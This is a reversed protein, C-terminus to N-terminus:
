EETNDKTNAAALAKERARENRIEFIDLILMKIFAATPVSLLIGVFGFLAGGVTIAVLVYFPKVGVSHGVIRPQVLNADIQQIVLIIALAILAKLWDGTTIYTAIVAIGGSIIAGFYPILNCLGVFIGLLLGYPIKFISLAIGLVVGVIIADLFAGYIYDYFIKAGRAVYSYVTYLTKKKFILNLVKGMALVIQEHSCLMYVSMVISIILNSFFSGVKLIENLYQDMSNLNFYGLIAEVTINKEIEKVDIIGLIKGSEGGLQHLYKIVSEYYKPVDEILSTISRSIAPFLLYIAGAIITIILTYTIGVSIGRSHKNFFNTKKLKKFLKEIANQPIFLLFAIIAATVIPSFIKLFELIGGVVVGLQDVTKYFIIVIATFIFLPIWLKKFKEFKM